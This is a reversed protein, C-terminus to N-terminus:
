FDTEVFILPFLDDIQGGKDRLLFFSADCAVGVPFVCKHTTLSSCSWNEQKLLAPFSAQTEGSSLAHFSADNKKQTLGKKTINM